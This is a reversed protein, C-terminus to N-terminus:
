RSLTLPAYTLRLELANIGERDKVELVISNKGIELPVVVKFGTRIVPWTMQHDGCKVLLTIEEQDIYCSNEVTSDLVQLKDARQSGSDVSTQLLMKHGAFTNVNPRTIVGELLVLPYFVTDEQIHNLIRIEFKQGCPEM